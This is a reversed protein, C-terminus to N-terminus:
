LKKSGSYTNNGWSLDLELENETRNVYVSGWNLQSGSLNYSTYNYGSSDSVFKEVKVQNFNIESFASNSSFLRISIESSTTEKLEANVSYNGVTGSYIGSVAVSPTPEDEKECNTLLLVTSAIALIFSINKRM